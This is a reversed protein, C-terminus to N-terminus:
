RLVDMELCGGSGPFPALSLLFTGKPLPIKQGMFTFFFSHLFPVHPQQNVSGFRVHATYRFFGSLPHMVTFEASGLSDYCGPLHCSRTSPLAIHPNQLQAQSLPRNLCPRAHCLWHPSGKPSAPGPWSQPRTNYVGLIRYPGTLRPNFRM